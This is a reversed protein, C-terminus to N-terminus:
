RPQMPVIAALVRQRVTRALDHDASMRFLVAAPREQEAMGDAQVGPGIAAAPQGAKVHEAPLHPLGVLASLRAGAPDVLGVLTRDRERSVGVHLLM